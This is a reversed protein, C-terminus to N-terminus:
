APSRPLAIRSLLRLRLTSHDLYRGFGNGFDALGEATFAHGLAAQPEPNLAAAARAKTIQEPEILLRAGGVLHKLEFIDIDEHIRLAQNVQVPHRQVPLIRQHVGAELELIWMRLL